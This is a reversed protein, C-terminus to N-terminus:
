KCVISNLLEHEIDCTRVFQCMHLRSISPTPRSCQGIYRCEVVALRMVSKLWLSSTPGLKMLTLSRM